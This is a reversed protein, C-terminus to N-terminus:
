DTVFLPAALRHEVTDGGDRREFALMLMDGGTDLAIM